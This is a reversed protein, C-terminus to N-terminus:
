FYTLIVLILFSHTFFLLASARELKWDFIQSLLFKGTFFYKLSVALRILHFTELGIFLATFVVIFPNKILMLTLTFYLAEGLLSLFLMSWIHTKSVVGRAIIWDALSRLIEMEFDRYQGQIIKVFYISYLLFVLGAIIGLLINM